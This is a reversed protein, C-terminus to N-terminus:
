TPPYLALKKSLPWNKITMNRAWCSIYSDTSALWPRGLILPYGNFKAKPQLVLFDTPYEWSDITVMVDEVIGESTVTSQDAVQLITTTKRLTGKLNLKLMTEKTMVNISVGLDILTNHVIVGNIHVDVVPSSPDLYKPFIERGLMLNSLQGVVNITPTDKKKRGPRKFLNEKIIRNYLLFM